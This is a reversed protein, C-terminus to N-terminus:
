IRRRRLRPRWVGVATSAVVLVMIWWLGWWENGMLEGIREPGAGGDAAQAALRAARQATGDIIVLTGEFTPLGLAAKVWVWRANVFAPHVSISLLGSVMVVALSPVILWKSLIRISHRVDAYADLSDQPATALLVMYAALGGTLGIAGLTHLLKVTRRAM